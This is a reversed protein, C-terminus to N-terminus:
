INQYGEQPFTTPEAHIYIFGSNDKNAIKFIPTETGLVKLIFSVGIIALNGDEAYERKRAVVNIKEVSNIEKINKGDPFSINKNSIDIIEEELLIFSIKYGDAQIGKWGIKFYNVPIETISICESSVVADGFLTTYKVDTAADDIYFSGISTEISNVVEGLKYELKVKGSTGTISILCASM